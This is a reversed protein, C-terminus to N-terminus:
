LLIAAQQDTIHDLDGADSHGLDLPGEDEDPDNAHGIAQEQNGMLGVVVTGQADM